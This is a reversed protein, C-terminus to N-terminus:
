GNEKEKEEKIIKEMAVVMEPDFQDGANKRLEKIAEEVSLRKKYSFDSTMTEFAEAVAIIRSGLPIEEGKLGEPYGLGDYREHHYKIMEKIDEPMRIKSLFKMCVLTHQRIREVDDMTLSNKSYINSDILLIGIDHLLAAITVNDIFDMDDTVKEALRRAYKATNLSHKEFQESKKKSLELLNLILGLFTENCRYERILREFFHTLIKNFGGIHVLEPGDFYDQGDRLICLHIRINKKELVTVTYFTKPIDRIEEGSMSGYFFQSHSEGKSYDYPFLEKASNLLVKKGRISMPSKSFILNLSNNNIGISLFLIDFKVAPVLLESSAVFFESIAPLYKKFSSFKIIIEKLTKVYEKKLDKKGDTEGEPLNDRKKATNFYSLTLTIEEAIQKSNKLTEENFPQKAARNREEIFGFIKDKYFIPTIQVNYIGLSRYFDGVIPEENLDNIFFPTRKRRLVEILPHSFHYKKLKDNLKLYGYYAILVYEGTKDDMLYLLARTTENKEMCHFIIKKFTLESEKLKDIM